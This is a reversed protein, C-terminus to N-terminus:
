KKDLYDYEEITFYYVCSASYSEQSVLLIGIVRWCDIERAIFWARPQLVASTVPQIIQYHKLGTWIDYNRM